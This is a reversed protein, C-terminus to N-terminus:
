IEQIVQSANSEDQKHKLLRKDELDGVLSYVLVREILELHSSGQGQEKGQERKRGGRMKEERREGGDEMRGGGGAM